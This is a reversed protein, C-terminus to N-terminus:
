TLACFYNLLFIFKFFKRPEEAEETKQGGVKEPDRFRPLGPDDHGQGVDGDEEDGDQHREEDVDDDGYCNFDVKFQKKFATFICLNRENM